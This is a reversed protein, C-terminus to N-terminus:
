SSYDDTAINIVRKKKRVAIEVFKAAGGISTRVYTIVVESMEIMYRNRRDIAFRKPVAELCEPYISQLLSREDTKQPNYYAKVAFCAINPYQGQVELLVRQVMRDFGGEEGVWFTNVGQNEILYVITDYLKGYVDSPCDRHGFFTCTM